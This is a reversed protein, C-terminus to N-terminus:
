RPWTSQTSQTSQIPWGECRTIRATGGDAYFALRHYPARPFLQDTICARGDNAFVEVSSRDLLVHMRITGTGALPPLAGPPTAHRKCFDPHFAGNGSRRRDVFLQQSPACYGIATHDGQADGIVLGAEAATEMEMELVLELAGEWTVDEVPRVGPGSVPLPGLVFGPTRLRRLEAVPQSRLRFRGSADRDLSLERPVTLAGRWPRTPTHEAYTWNSMWGMAIRRGDEQPIGSFTVSAYNDCGYDLWLITEPPHANTFHQGDFDGVFYQTGTGGNPAGGGVSVLLVWRATRPDDPSALPFLDPCEWVGGHAGHGRGFDGVWDWDILNASRYIRVHDGAALVMIWRNSAPHWFVKPDRFDVLGPNPIIPNCPYKTWSRGRDNSFAMSQQQLGAAFHTFHAVLTKETGTQLGSSDARDVVVSGSWIEGVTDPYLAIPLHRWHLLDTSVAHGWHKPGAHAGTGPVYQFFLHYEGAYYVLGNPDNMWGQEPTFHFQPRYPQDYGSRSEAVAAARIL